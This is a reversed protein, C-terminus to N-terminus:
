RLDMHARAISVSARMVGTWLDELEKRRAFGLTRLNRMTESITGGRAGIVVPLVVVADVGLDRKVSDFISRYKERAGERLSNGQEFRVTVDVILAKGPTKIVLDPRLPYAGADFLQERAVVFGGERAKEEIKDVVADHRAIRGGRGAPCEGLVHGLTKDKEHCLRCRRDTEENIRHIYDRTPFVNGRLKILDIEEGPHLAPERLWVNGIANDRFTAVGKGQSPQAAWLRAEDKKKGEKWNEIAPLGTPWGLGMAEVRGDVIVHKAM